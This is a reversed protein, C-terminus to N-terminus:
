VLGPSMRASLGCQLGVLLLHRRQEPRTASLLDTWVWDLEDFAARVFDVSLAMQWIDQMEANRLWHIDRDSLRLLMRAAYGSSRCLNWATLLLPVQLVRRDFESNLSIPEAAVGGTAAAIELTFLARPFAAAQDIQELTAQQLLRTPAAMLGFGVTAIDPRSRLYGLFLRNAQRVDDLGPLTQLQHSM